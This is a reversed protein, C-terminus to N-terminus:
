LISTSPEFGDRAVMGKLFRNIEQFTEESNSIKRGTYDTFTVELSHKKNEFDKRIVFGEQINKPSFPGKQILQYLMLTTFNKRQVKSFSYYQENLKFIYDNLNMKLTAIDIKPTVEKNQTLLTVTKGLTQDAFKRLDTFSKGDKKEPTM